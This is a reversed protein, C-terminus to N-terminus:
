RMSARFAEIAEVTLQTRYEILKRGLEQTEELPELSIGNITGRGAAIRQEYRSSTPDIVSM